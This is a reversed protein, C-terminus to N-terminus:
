FCLKGATKLLCVNRPVLEPFDKKWRGSTVQVILTQSGLQNNDLQYFFYKGDASIAANPNISSWNMITASDLHPKQASLSSNVIFFSLVLYIKM